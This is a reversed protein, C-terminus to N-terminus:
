EVEIQYLTYTVTLEVGAVIDEITYVWLNGRDCTVKRCNPAPSHNIFGGLPSRAYGQPEASNPWHSIGLSKGAPIDDVAIIGLGHIASPGITLCDPLPAYM